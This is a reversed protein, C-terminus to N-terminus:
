MDMQFIMNLERRESRVVNLVQSEHKAWPMEGVAFADYEDLVKRLTALHEHLRPGCAYYMHAPQYEQGEITIPADPYGPTKSILNIVDMRFGDIGRNLWFRM